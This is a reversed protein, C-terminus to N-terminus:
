RALRQVEAALTESAVRLAGGGHEIGLAKFGADITALVGMLMPPNLHGMHGIRFLADTAPSLAADLGLGIGLVLGAERNCWDRLRQADGAGTRITTVAHSRAAPDPVNLRIEGLESWVDAASWIIRALAEHRSLTAELGEEDLIMTLAERLGYLHHTPATGCFIQYFLDPAFRPQWDFYPSVATLGTRAVLARPRAFVFSVGPPTMLGKQSAAVMVDVDWNTMEFRECALSAICDIMILADPRAARIAQALPAIDNTVSTSTDTQTALVAKFDGDAQRLRDSVRGPDAPAATGFDLVEVDAGLKRAWEAWGLGFRGTGLVLVRDGPAITNQLAAEWSGHGNAIYIAVEADPACAVRKLDALITQVMDILEGEYINPAARHMARLVRDPMISPGPIALTERGHRLSM